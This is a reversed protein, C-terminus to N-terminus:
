VIVTYGIDRLFRVLMKDDAFPSDKLLLTPWHTTDPKPEDVVQRPVRTPQPSPTSKLESLERSLRGIIDQPTEQIDYSLTMNYFPGDVSFLRLEVNQADEPLRTRAHQVLRAYHGLDSGDKRHPLLVVEGADSSLLKRVLRPASLSSICSM